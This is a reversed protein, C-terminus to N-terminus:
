NQVCRINARGFYLKNENMSFFFTASKFSDLLIYSHICVFNIEVRVLGFLNLLLSGHRRVVNFATCCMDVFHHFKATPKDGGNIVYAM